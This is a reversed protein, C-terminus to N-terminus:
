IMPAKTQGRVLRGRAAGAGWGGGRSGWGEPVIVRWGCVSHDVSTCCSHPADDGRQPRTPSHAAPGAHSQGRRIVLPTRDTRLLQANSCLRPPGPVSNRPFGGGSGGGFCAGSCDNHDGHVTATGLMPSLPARVSGGGGAGAAAPARPQRTPASPPHSVQHPVPSAATAVGGGGGFQRLFGLLDAFLDASRNKPM